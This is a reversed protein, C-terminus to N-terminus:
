TKLGIQQMSEASMYGRQAEWEQTQELLIMGILRMASDINPFVGVVRTRRRIERNVREIPNTSSIKAAHESPFDLYALADDIGDVLIQMARAYRDGYKALLQDVLMMVDERKAQHFLPKLDAAVAEKQKQPVPALINRLFHVKCRQWTTRLLVESIAKKLGAHADSIVLKVGQLGRALLTRFFESWSEFRETDVIDVGILERAGQDTIGYAVVVAHSQSRGEFRIKEYIADLMLYPYEATLPRERFQTVLEDLQKNLDSVQSKSLSKVGLADVLKEVKRTSVGGIYAEHVLSILAAECREHHTLFSPMYPTKTGRTRPIDLEFTGVRTDYRRPRTGNRYGERDEHREYREANLQARVEQEMVSNLTAALLDRLPDNSDGLRHLAVAIPDHPALPKTMLHEQLTSCEPPQVAM